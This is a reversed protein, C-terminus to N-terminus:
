PRGLTVYGTAGGEGSRGLGLYFPRLWTDAGFFLSGGYRTESPNLAEILDWQRGAALLAGVEHTM